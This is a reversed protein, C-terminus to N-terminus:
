KTYTRERYTERKDIRKLAVVEFTTLNKKIEMLKSIFDM